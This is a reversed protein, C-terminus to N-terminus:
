PTVLPLRETRLVRCRDELDPTAFFRGKRAGDWPFALESGDALGRIDLSRGNVHRGRADRLNPTARSGEATLRVRGSGVRQWHGEMEQKRQADRVATVLTRPFIAIPTMVPADATGPSIPSDADPQWAQTPSASEEPGTCQFLAMSFLRRIGGVSVGLRDSETLM